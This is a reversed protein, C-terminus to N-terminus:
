AAVEKMSVSMDALKARSVSRRQGILQRGAMFEAPANVAEVAQIRDGCLHFVAFKASAPDGRVVVDDV